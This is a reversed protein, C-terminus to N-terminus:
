PKKPPPASMVRNLRWRVTEAVRPEKNQGRATWADLVEKERGTCAIGFAELYWKHVYAEQRWAEQAKFVEDGKDGPPPPTAISWPKVKDALAVLVDLCKGTPEYNMALCLERAIFPEPDSLLEQALAVMDMGILRAARLAAVRLDVDKEALAEKVFAPGELRALLWLARARHRANASTRFVIRLAAKAEAGGAVLKQFGLYRRALNPSLLAEIQGKVTSLDVKPVVPKHGRPAVRYIRGSMSELPKDGTAHGGVGPDTWDAVFVSGDVGVAVDAPRFWRDSSKLLDQSACTYGAGAPTPLYARVVNHLAECHLPHGRFPEPLLDGEYVLIGCPSGAGTNLLNPVVGPDRQHWHAEQRTQDPYLPRDRGWNSGALGVYGFDGGEMVYNIRVGMNGDDDNDSQWATGFSDAAVEYNNRFNHGLTEFGSGDPNCRFAMGQQYRRGAGRAGNRWQTGKGGIHSGTSDVVPEGKANKVFANNCGDNGANFYFRGDPGFMIAHLGHDHNVGSFGELFVEPTGAPRDGSADITYVLMRPSQAIYVKNGLVCIGLPGVISPDQAFVKYSDCKGDLDTDEMIVIRDGAPRPKSGRYNASETVWVRGREDVDMNTPNVVGPEHAWVAVELGAPVTFTKISEEPSKMVNKKDQAGLLVLACMAAATRMM